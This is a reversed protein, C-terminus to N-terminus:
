AIGQVRLRTYPNADYGGDHFGRRLCSLQLSQISAVYQLADMM